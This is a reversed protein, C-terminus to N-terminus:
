IGGKEYSVNSATCLFYQLVLGILFMLEIHCVAVTLKFGFQPWAM